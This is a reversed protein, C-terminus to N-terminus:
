IRQMKFRSMAQEVAIERVTKEILERPDRSTTAWRRDGVGMEFVQYPDKDYTYQITDWQRGKGPIARIAKVSSAFKGTQNQLAPSNMNKMLAEPLKSNIMNIAAMSGEGPLTPSGQSKTKRSMKPKRINKVTAADFLSKAKVLPITNTIPILTKFTKASQEKIKSKPKHGTYRVKTVTRTKRTLADKLVMSIADRLLTSAPNEIIDKANQKISELAPIETMRASNQNSSVTEMSLVMIYNKDLNGNADLMQKHDLSINAIEEYTNVINKLIADDGQKFEATSTDTEEVRRQVKAATIESSASGYEGHGQQIGSLEEGKKQNGALKAAFADGEPLNANMARYADEIGNALIDRKNKRITAYSGIIYYALNGGKGHRKKLDAMHAKLLALKHPDKVNTEQKALFDTFKKVVAAKDKSKLKPLGFFKAVKDIEKNVAKYDYVFLQGPSREAQRRASNKVGKYATGDSGAMKRLDELIEEAVKKLGASSM